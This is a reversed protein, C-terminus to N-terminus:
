RTIFLICYFSLFLLLLFVSVSLAQHCMLYYFGCGVLRVLQFSTALGPQCGPNGVLKWSTRRTPQQRLFYDAAFCVICCSCKEFTITTSQLYIKLKKKFLKSTSIVKLTRQLSNWIKRAKYRVSRKGLNTSVSFIHLSVHVNQLLVCHSIM